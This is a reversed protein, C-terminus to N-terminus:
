EGKLLVFRTRLGSTGVTLRLGLVKVRLRLMGLATYRKRCHALRPATRSKKKRECLGHHWGGRRIQIFDLLRHFNHERAGTMVRVRGALSYVHIYIRM